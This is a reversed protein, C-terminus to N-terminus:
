LGIAGKCDAAAAAAAAAKSGTMVKTSQLAALCM